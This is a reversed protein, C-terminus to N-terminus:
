TKADDCGARGEDEDALGTRPLTIKEPETACVNRESGGSILTETIEGIRTNVLSQFITFSENADLREAVLDHVARRRLELLDNLNKLHVAPLTDERSSAALEEVELYYRDIRNKRTQRRWERFPLTTSAATILLTLVLSLAEAYAVFFPPDDRAYFKAAGRHIPFRLERSSRLERMEAMAGHVTTLEYRKEFLLKTLRHVVHDDIDQRTVLLAGVAITGVAKPPMNGYTHAPIVAPSTGPLVRSLGELSSGRGDDESLSLLEAEGGEILQRVWSTPMGAVFVAADVKDDNFQKVAEKFGFDYAEYADAEIGYHELLATALQQTGSGKGGLNIRHGALDQINSIGLGRRVVIQLTEDYLEAVVRLEDSGEVDNQIFAFQIEEDNLLLLRNVNSGGSNRISVTTGQHREQFLESIERGVTDYTGGKSGSAITIITPLPRELYYIALGVALVVGPLAILLPLRLRHLWSEGQRPDLRSYFEEAKAGFEQDKELNM